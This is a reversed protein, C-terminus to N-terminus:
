VVDDYDEDDDGGIDDYDETSATSHNDRAKHHSVLAEDDEVKVYDWQQDTSEEYDNEDALNEYSQALSINCKMNPDSNCLPAPPPFREAEDEVEVYDLQPDMSEEYDHEEALNEYSLGVSAESNRNPHNCLPASGLIRNEEVKVADLKQDLTEEYDHESQDECDLEEALNEYSQAGATLFQTRPPLPPTGSDVQRMQYKNSEVKVDSRGQLNLVQRKGKKFICRNILIFILSIVLSVFIMGLIVLVWIYKRLLAM